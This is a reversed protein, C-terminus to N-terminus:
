KNKLAQAKKSLYEMVIAIMIKREFPMMEGIDSFSLGHEKALIFDTKYVDALEGSVFM